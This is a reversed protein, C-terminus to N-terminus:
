HKTSNMLVTVCRNYNRHLKYNDDLFQKYFQSLEEASVADDDMEKDDRHEANQQQRQKIFDHKQQVCAIWQKFSKAM